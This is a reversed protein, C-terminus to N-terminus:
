AAGEKQERQIRDVMLDIAHDLRASEPRIGRDCLISNAATSVFKIGGDALGCIDAITFRSVFAKLRVFADPTIRELSGYAVKLRRRQASTLMPTM